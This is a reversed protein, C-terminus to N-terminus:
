KGRRGGKRKREARLKGIDLNAISQFGHVIAKWANLASVNLTIEKYYKRHGEKDMKLVRIITKTM